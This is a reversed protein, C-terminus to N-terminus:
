FGRKRRLAARRKRECKDAPTGKRAPDIVLSRLLSATDIAIFKTQRGSKSAVGLGNIPKLSVAHTSCYVTEGLMLRIKKLLKSEPLGQESGEDFAMLLKTASRMVERVSSPPMINGPLLSSPSDKHADLIVVRRQLAPHSSATDIDIPKKSTGAETRSSSKRNPGGAAAAKASPASASSAGTALAARLAAQEEFAQAVEATTFQKKTM